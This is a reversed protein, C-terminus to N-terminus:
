RDRLPRIRFNTMLNRSGSGLRRVSVKELTTGPALPTNISSSNALLNCTEAGTKGSTDINGDKTTCEGFGTTSEAKDRPLTANFDSLKTISPRLNSLISAIPKMEM